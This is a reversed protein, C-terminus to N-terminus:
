FKRPPDNGCARSQQNLEKIDIKAKSADGKTGGDGVAYIAGKGRIGSSCCGWDRGLVGNV